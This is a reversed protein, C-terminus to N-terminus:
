VTSDLRKRICEVSLEASDTASFKCQIGILQGLFTEKRCAHIMKDKGKATDPYWQIFMFKGNYGCLIAWCCQDKWESLMQDRFEKYYDKIEQHYCYQKVILSIGDLNYRTKDNMRLLYSMIIDWKKKILEMKEDTFETKKAERVISLKYGVIRIIIYAHQKSIKMEEFKMVCDDEGEM